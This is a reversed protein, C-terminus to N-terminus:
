AGSTVRIELWKEGEVIVTSRRTHVFYYERDPHTNHHSPYSSFATGSDSSLWPSKISLGDEASTRIHKRLWWVLWQNPYKDRITQWDIIQGGYVSVSANIM